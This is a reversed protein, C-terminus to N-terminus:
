PIAALVNRDEETPRKQGRLLWDLKKHKDVWAADGSGM